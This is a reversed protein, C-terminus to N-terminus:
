YPSVAITSVVVPRFHTDKLNRSPIFLLLSTVFMVTMLHWNALPKYLGSKLTPTNGKGKTLGRASPHNLRGWMEQGTPIAATPPHPSVVTRKSPQTLETARRGEQGASQSWIQHCGGPCCSSQHAEKAGPSTVLVAQDHTCRLSAKTKKTCLLLAGLSHLGSLSVCTSGSDM